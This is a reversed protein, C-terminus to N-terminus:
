RRTGGKGTYTNDATTAKMDAWADVQNIALGSQGRTGQAPSGGGVWYGGPFQGGVSSQIATSVVTTRNADRFRAMTM